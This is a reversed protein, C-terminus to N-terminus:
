CQHSTASPSRSRPPGPGAKPTPRPSSSPSSDATGGVTLSRPVRLPIGTPPAPPSPGRPRARCAAAPTRSAGGTASRASPTGPSSDNADFSLEEGEDAASYKPTGTPAVYPDVTASMKTGDAGLYKLTESETCLGAAVCTDVDFDTNSDLHFSFFTYDGEDNPGLRYGFQYKGDWDLYSFLLTQAVAGNTKTIFWNKHLRATATSDAGPTQYTITASRTTTSSGDEQILFQPDIPSAAPIPTPNLCEPEGAMVYLQGKYLEMGRPTVASNDCSEHVPAPLTAGVFLSFLTTM